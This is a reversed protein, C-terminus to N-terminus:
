EEEDGEREGLDCQRSIRGLICLLISLLNDVQDNSNDSGDDSNQEVLASPIYKFVSRLLQLSIM